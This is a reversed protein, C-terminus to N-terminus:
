PFWMSMMSMSNKGPPGTRNGIKEKNHTCYIKKKSLTGNIPSIIISANRKSVKKARKFIIENKKTINSKNYSLKTQSHIHIYKM